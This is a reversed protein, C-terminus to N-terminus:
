ITEKELSTEKIVFNRRMPNIDKKNQLYICLQKNVSEKLFLELAMLIEGKLGVDLTKDYSLTINIHNEVKIIQIDKTDMGRTKCFAIKCDDIAKIKETESLSLWSSSLSKSYFNPSNKYRTLECYKKFLERSFFRTMSFMPDFNQPLQIGKVMRDYFNNRCEMELILNAHDNLENIPMDMLIECYKELIGKEISTRSNQYTANKITDSEKSVLITVIVNDKSLSILTSDSNPQLAGCYTNNKSHKVISEDYYPNCDSLLAMSNVCTISLLIGKKNKEISAIGFPLLKELFLTEDAIEKVTQKGFQIFIENKGYSKASELLCVISKILDDDPVWMTLYEIEQTFGRLTFILNEQYDLVLKEYDLIANNKISNESVPVKNNM